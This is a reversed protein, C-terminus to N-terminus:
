QRTFTYRHGENDRLRLEGGEVTFQFRVAAAESGEAPVLTLTDGAARYRGTVARSQREPIGPVTADLRMTYSSDPQLSLGGGVLTVNPEAPASAPLPADNIRALQYSGALIPPREESGSGCAACALLLIAALRRM